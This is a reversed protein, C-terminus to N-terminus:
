LKTESQQLLYQEWEKEVEALWTKRINMRLRDIAEETLHKMQLDTIFLTIIAIM